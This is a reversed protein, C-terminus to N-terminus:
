GVHSFTENQNSLSIAAYDVSISLGIQIERGPECQDM